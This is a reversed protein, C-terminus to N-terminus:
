NISSQILSIEQHPKSICNSSAPFVIIFFAVNKVRLEISDLSVSSCELRPSVPDIIIYVWSLLQDEISAIRRGMEPGM